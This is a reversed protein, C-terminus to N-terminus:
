CKRGSLPQFRRSGEPAQSPNFLCKRHRNGLRRGARPGHPRCQHRRGRGGMGPPSIDPSLWKSDSPQRFRSPRSSLSSIMARQSVTVLRRTCGTSRWPLRRCPGQWGWPDPGTPDPRTRNDGFGLSPRRTPAACSQLRGARRGLRTGARQHTPGHYRSPLSKRVHPGPHAGSSGMGM